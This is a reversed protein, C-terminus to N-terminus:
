RERWAVFSIMWEACWAVFGLMFFAYRANFNADHILSSSLTFVCIGLGLFVLNCVEFFGLNCRREKLVLGLLVLISGLAILDLYFIWHEKHFYSQLACGMLIYIMVNLSPSLRQLVRGLPHLSNPFYRLLVCGLPILLFFIYFFGCVMMEGLHDWFVEEFSRLHEQILVLELLSHSEQKEFLSFVFLYVFLLCLGLIIWMECSERQDRSDGNILAYLCILFGLCYLFHLFLDFIRGDQSFLLFLQSFTVSFQSVILSLVVLVFFCFFLYAFFPAVIKKIM